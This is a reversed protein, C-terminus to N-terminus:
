DNSNTTNKYTHYIRQLITISGFTVILILAIKMFNFFSALIILIIREAREMIGVKCSEIICEARARTYSITYSVILALLSLLLLEKDNNDFAYISLGTFIASDSLRDITSDLFGGFKSVKRSVRALNGDILDCIGGIILVIGGISFYGKSYFFASILTIVFGLLTVINPSLNYKELTYSIPELFKEM